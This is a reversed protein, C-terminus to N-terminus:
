AMGIEQRFEEERESISSMDYVFFQPTLLQDLQSIDDIHDNLWLYWEEYYKDWSIQKLENRTVYFGMRGKLGLRTLEAAYADIIRNNTVTSGPLCLHAWVGLAPPYIRIPFSLQYMEEKAEAVNRARADFYMAYPIDAEICAQVQAELKPNQFRVRSHISNFLYGAELMAGVVGIDKLRTLNVAPSNRDLTIIYPDLVEENIQSIDAFGTIAANYATSVGGSSAQAQQLASSPGSSSGLRRNVESAIAPFKSKLYPGPCGTAAFWQHMTLNSGSLSGTYTLRAIGNRRCIDECLNLLANYAQASIPWDDTTNSNSVEITVARHDNDPSSSTWTRHNETVFLGIRGNNDIAYNWSAERYRLISSFSSLDSHVGAAHHITIRTIDYKRANWNTTSTDIYTALSSNGM